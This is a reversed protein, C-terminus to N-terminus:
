IELPQNPSLFIRSFGLGCVAQLDALKVEGIFLKSTMLEFPVKLTSSSWNLYTAMQLNEKLIKSM